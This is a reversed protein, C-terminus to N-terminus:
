HCGCSEGDCKKKKPFIYKFILGLLIISSIISILNADEQHHMIEKINIALDSFMVDILFGFIISGIIISGLYIALSKKGLIKYIVSITVANTAPGASLFLLVAGPSFGILILSAGIPVSATACVYLPIAIALVILYSILYNESLLEELNQPVFTTILAGLVLGLLLAKAIDKFLTNFSYDILEKIDFKMKKDNNHCHHENSNNEKPTISWKSVSEEKVFIISLIGAILAIILSSIVRFATFIGGLVGYTVLISDVGTIPTSILFSQISAKSAGSDKLSSVFPIVSCSCLPLPIGILSANFVSKFRNEGLHKKIFDDPILVKIIGAILVGILIYIAMSNLLEWFNSIFELFVREIM